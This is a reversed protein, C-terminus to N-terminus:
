DGARKAAEGAVVQAYGGGGVADNNLLSAARHAALAELASRGAGRRHKARAGRTEIFGNGGSGIDQAVATLRQEGPKGGVNCAQAGHHLEGLARASDDIMEAALPEEAIQPDDLVATPHGRRQTLDAIMHVQQEDDTGIRRRLKRAEVLAAHRRALRQERILAVQRQDNPQSRRLRAIRNRYLPEGTGEVTKRFGDCRQAAEDIGPGDLRRLDGAGGYLLEA